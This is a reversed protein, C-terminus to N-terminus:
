NFLRQGQQTEHKISEVTDEFQFTGASNSGHVTFPEGLDLLAKCNGGVKADEVDAVVCAGMSYEMPAMNRVAVSNHSNPTEIVASFPYTLGDDSAVQLRMPTLEPGLGSRMADCELCFEMM